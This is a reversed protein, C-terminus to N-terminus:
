SNFIAQFFNKFVKKSFVQPQTRPGQGRSNRDKADLLDTRSLSDNAMAESKKQTRPRSGQTMAEVEPIQVRFANFNKLFHRKVSIIEPAFYFKPPLQGGAVGQSRKQDGGLTKVFILIDFQM